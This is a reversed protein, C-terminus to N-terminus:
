WPRRTRRCCGTPCPRCRCARRSRHRRYGARRTPPRGAPHRCRRRCRSRNPLAARADGGAERGAPAGAAVGLAVGIDADLVEVAALPRIQQGAVAAGVHQAAHAPVVHRRPPAPARNGPRRRPAPCRRRRLRSRWADRDIQAGPDPRGALREPVGVGLMSFTTPEVPPSAMAPLLPALTSFPQIPRSVRAPPAPASRKAKEAPDCLATPALASRIVSKLRDCPSLISRDAISALDVAAPSWAKLKM